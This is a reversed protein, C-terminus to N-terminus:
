AGQQATRGPWECLGAVPCATCRPNRATCVYRGHLILWHHAHQLFRKPSIGAWRTFLKQFHAESLGVQRAVDALSPQAARNADLFRIAREIRAYDTVEFDSAM